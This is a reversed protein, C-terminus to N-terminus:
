KRGHALEFPHPPLRLEELGPLSKVNYVVQLTETTPTGGCSLRIGRDTLEDSLIHDGPMSMEGDCIAVACNACAGGRCAYPWKFGRNEAAQLLTENSQVLFRGYDEADLEADSAKAFLDDDDLSWGFDDLIEYNLYEVKPDAPESPAVVDETDDTASSDGYQGSIAEEYAARVLQFERASGGRDPHTELVRRRYAREIEDEDATPDIRLVDFPSEV